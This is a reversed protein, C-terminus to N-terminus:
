GHINPDSGIIMGGQDYCIEDCKFGHKQIDAPNVPFMQKAIDPVNGIDSGGDIFCQNNKECELSYM